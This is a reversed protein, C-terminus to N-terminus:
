VGRARCGPPKATILVPLQARRLLDFKAISCLEGHKLTKLFTAAAWGSGVFVVRQKRPPAPASSSRASGREEPAAAAQEELAATASQLFCPMSIM